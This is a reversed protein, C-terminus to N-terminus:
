VVENVFVVVLAAVGWVRVLRRRRRWVAKCRQGSLCSGWRARLKGM